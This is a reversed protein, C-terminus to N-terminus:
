ESPREDDLNVIRWNRVSERRALWDAHELCLEYQRLPRGDAGIYRAIITARALCIHITCRAVYHCERLEIEKVPPNNVAARVSKKSLSHSHRIDSATDSFRAATFSPSFVMLVIVLIQIEPLWILHHQSRFSSNM